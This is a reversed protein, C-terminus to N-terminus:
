NGPQLFLCLRERLIVDSGVAYRGVMIVLVGSHIAEFASLFTSVKM